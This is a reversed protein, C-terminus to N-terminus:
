IAKPMFRGPTTSPRSPRCYGTRPRHRGPRQKEPDPTRDVRASGAAIRGNNDLSGSAIELHGSANLEGQNDLRQAQIALQKGAIRRDELIGSVVKGQNSVSTGEVSVNGASALTQRVVLDGQAQLDVDGMAFTPGQL